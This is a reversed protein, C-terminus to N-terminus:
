GECQGLGLSYTLKHVNSIGRILEPLLYSMAILSAMTMLYGFQTSEIAHWGDM